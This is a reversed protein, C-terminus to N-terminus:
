KSGGGFPVNEKKSSASSARPSTAAIHQRLAPLLDQTSTESVLNIGRLNRLKSYVLYVGQIILCTSNTTYVGELDMSIGPPLSKMWFVLGALQEKTITESVLVRFVARLSPPGLTTNTSM